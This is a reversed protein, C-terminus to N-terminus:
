NGAKASVPAIFFIDGSIDTRTPPYIICRGDLGISFRQQSGARNANQLGSKVQLSSHRRLHSSPTADTVSSAPPLFQIRAARASHEWEALLTM